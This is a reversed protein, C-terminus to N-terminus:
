WYQNRQDRQTHAKWGAPDHQDIIPNLYNRLEEQHDEYSRDYNHTINHNLLCWKSM